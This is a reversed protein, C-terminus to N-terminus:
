ESIVFKQLHLLQLPEYDTQYSSVMPASIQVSKLLARGAEDQTLDFFAQTLAKRVAQPVRPHATVPHSAVAPTQYITRLQDRVAPLESNVASAISGGAAVEQHIVHRYVNSHTKVYKSEFKIGFQETLLARMYLSAGFANPAPFAITQGALDKATQYASDKRVLLVGSLSRSDRLLPIYGQAQQAMVAHYPNMYAFDPEGKMFGAEFLPISPALKLKLAIGTDKSIRALLPAWDEYVEVASYQPVVAFSYVHSAQATAGGAFSALAAVWVSLAASTLRKGWSRSHPKL